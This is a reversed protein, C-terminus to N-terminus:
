PTTPYNILAKRELEFRRLEGGRSTALKVKSGIKGKLLNRTARYGSRYLDHSDISLIEDGDKIGAVEAPSEPAVSFIETRKTKPNYGASIGTEGELENERDETFNDFWVRRRAYDITTNFHRLFDFGITGDGEASSSPLDIISWYTEKVPIGFISLPPMQIDWSDVTGSAVGSSGMFKPAKGVTWLGIRELSDKHTTAFFANGTDLAMILKKGTSLDVSMEVSDAGIPLLKSLFTKKGDPKRASVDVSSPHFIFKNKEFNIETVFRRIVEFGMIGDCHTGYSLSYDSGPMMVADSLETALITMGGVKFSKLKVTDAEFRGVFDQLGQKGTAPGINIASDLIVTGSFGSDFMLSVKRGNVTADVIIANEGLRFPVEVPATLAAQASVVSVLLASIMSAM